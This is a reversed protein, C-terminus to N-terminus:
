SPYASHRVLTPTTILALDGMKVIKRDGTRTNKWFTNAKKKAEVQDLALV